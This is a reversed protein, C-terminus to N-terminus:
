YLETSVLTKNNRSKAITLRGAEELAQVLEIFAKPKLEASFARYAAKWSIEGANAVLLEALKEQQRKWGSESIRETMAVLHEFWQGCYNIAALMHKLEVTDCMDAMALVTAAKLVSTNLRSAGAELVNSRAEGQAADLAATIFVNWREWAEETCPVAITRETPDNWDEWADRAEKLKEIMSNFAPDGKAREEADAQRVYDSEKTREPTEASVYIFRTLFGSQFDELTLYDALQDRIGMTFLNLAVRAGKRQKDKDEGSARLKGTVKGDYIETLEGKIGALYAKSDIEKMFGQIEDRHLLASRNAGARLAEDLGEATFKSGLDYTYNEGEMSEICKLMLSKTTSKRSLTTSGLVMFWLNLPTEGWHPFAHGFDSFITSLVTFAGAIHYQEPADTKSTAWSLYEDVFTRQLNEKEYPTLFDFGKTKKKPAVTIVVDEGEEEFDGEIFIGDKARARQVDDWLKKDAGSDGDRHWKNLESHKAVVFVQIDTAGLSFLETYLAYLAESGSSGKDFQNTNLLSELRSSTPIQGLVEAYSPIQTEEPFPSPEFEFEPVAPYFQTFEEETYTLGTHEMTVEYVEGKDEFYKTNTTGPVRLLKTCSWGDDFGTQKKPHAVSVSHSLTEALRADTMEDIFWYLHTKEPSTRVVISPEVRIDDLNFDDADGYVVTAYQALVRLRKPGRFLVPTFYVDEHKYKEIYQFVDEAQAPWQFFKHRRLEKNENMRAIDVHGEQEGWVQRLFDEYIPTM